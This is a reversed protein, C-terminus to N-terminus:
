RSVAEACSLRRRRPLGAAPLADRVRELTARLAAAEDDDLHRGFHDQVGRLHLAAARRFVRGDM